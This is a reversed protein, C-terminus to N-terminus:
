RRRLIGNDRLRPRIQHTWDYRAEDAMALLSGAALTLLRILDCRGTVAARRADPVLASVVPWSALDSGAGPILEPQEDPM